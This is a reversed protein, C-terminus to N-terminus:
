GGRYIREMFGTKELKECVSMDVVEQARIQAAKPNLGYRAMLRLPNAVAEIKPCPRRQFEELLEQYTKELQDPTKLRLYKAVTKKVADKNSGNRIFAVGEFIGKAIQEIMEHNIMMQKESAVLVNQHYPIDEKVLDFLVHYGKRLAEQAHERVLAMVDVSGGLLALLRAPGGGVGVSRFQIRDRQPDIGLRDLALYTALTPAGSPSAIGVIKGILEDPKKISPRSVLYYNLRDGMAAIVKLDAGAAVANITHTVGIFAIPVERAVLSQTLTVINVYVPDVDLGYKQFLNHEKAIWLPAVSAAIQGHGFFLRKLPEAAQGARDLFILFFLLVLVIEKKV